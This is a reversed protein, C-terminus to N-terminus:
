LILNRTSKSLRKSCDTHSHNDKVAMQTMFGSYIYARLMYRYKGMSALRHYRFPIGPFTNNVYISFAGLVM